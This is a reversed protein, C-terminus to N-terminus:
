IEDLFLAPEQAVFTVMLECEHHKYVQSWRTTQYTTPDCIVAKTHHYLVMWQEFFDKSIS